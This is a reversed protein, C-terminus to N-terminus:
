EKEVLTFEAKHLVGEKTKYYDLYNRVFGITKETIFGEPVQSILYEYTPQFFDAGNTFPFFASFKKGLKYPKPVVEGKNYEHLNSGNIRLWIGITMFPKDIEGPEVFEYGTKEWNLIPKVRKKLAEAKTTNVPRMLGISTPLNTEDKVVDTKAYFIISASQYKENLIEADKKPNLSFGVVDNVIEDPIQSLVEAMTMKCFGYYGGIRIFIDKTLIPAIGTAKGTMVSKDDFNFSENRPDVFSDVWFLDFLKEDKESTSYAKGDIGSMAPTLYKIRQLRENLVEDSIEPISIQKTTMTRKKNSTM